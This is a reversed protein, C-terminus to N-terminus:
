TKTRLRSSFYQKTVIISLFLKYGMKKFALLRLIRITPPPLTASSFNVKRKFDLGSAHTVMTDGMNRSPVTVSAFCPSTVSMLSLYLLFYKFFLCITMAVVSLGFTFTFTCLCQLFRLM